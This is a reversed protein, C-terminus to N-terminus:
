VRKLRNSVTRRDTRLFCTAKVKRQFNSYPSYKQGYMSSLSTRFGEGKFVLFVRVNLSGMGLVFRSKCEGSKLM